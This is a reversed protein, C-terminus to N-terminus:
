VLLFRQDDLQGRVPHDLKLGLQEQMTNLLSIKISCKQMDIEQSMVRWPIDLDVGFNERQEMTIIEGPKCLIAALTSDVTIKTSPEELTYLTSRATYNADTHSIHWINNSKLILKREGFRNISEDNRAEAVTSWTRNQTSYDAHVFISNKVSKPSTQVQINSIYKSILTHHTTPRSTIQSFSIRGDEIYIASRAIDALQRLAYGLKTDKFYAKMRINNERWITEWNSFSNYNIDPNNNNKLSSLGGYSTLLLWALESPLYRSGTLDLPQENGLLVETVKSINDQAQLLIYNELISAQELRGQFLTIYQYGTIRHVWGLRIKCVTLLAENSALKEALANKYALKISITVPRLNNWERNVRPWQQVLHSIDENDLILQRKPRSLSARMQQRFWSSVSYSM